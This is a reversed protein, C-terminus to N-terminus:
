DPDEESPMTSSPTPEPTPEPTQTPTPTPTPTPTEVPVITEVVDMPTPTPTLTPTPTPTQEPTQTLTPTPTADGGYRRTVVSVDVKDELHATLSEYLAEATDNFWQDSSVEISVVVRGGDQLMGKEIAADMLENAADTMSKGEIEYGDIVRRGNENLGFLNIATGDETVDMRIEADTSLYISAYKRDGSFLFFLSLFIAVLGVAIASILIIKRKPVPKKVPQPAAETRQTKQPPTFTVIDDVVEGIEYGMNAARLFRGREDMVVSYSLHNEMVIYRM